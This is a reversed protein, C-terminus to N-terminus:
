LEHIKETNKMTIKQTILIKKKLMLIYLVNYHVYYSKCLCVIFGGHNGGGLWPCGFLICIPSFFFVDVFYIIKIVSHSITSLKKKKSRLIHQMGLM